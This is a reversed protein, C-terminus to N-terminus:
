PTASPSAEPSASAAASADAAAKEEDATPPRVYIRGNLNLTVSGPAAGEAGGSVIDVNTILFARDLNELSNLYSVAQNFSSNKLSLTVTSYSLLAAPAPAPA